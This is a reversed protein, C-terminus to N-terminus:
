AFFAEAHADVVFRPAGAGLRQVVPISGPWGGSSDFPVRERLEPPDTLRIALAMVSSFAVGNEHLERAIAVAEHNRFSGFQREIDAQYTKFNNQNFESAGALKFLIVMLEVRRDVGVRLQSSQALPSGPGAQGVARSAAVSLIACLIRLLTNLTKRLFGSHCRPEM